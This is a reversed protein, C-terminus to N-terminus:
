SWAQERDACDLDIILNLMAEAKAKDRTSIIVVSKIESQLRWVIQPDFYGTLTYGDVENGSTCIQAFATSNYIDGDQTRIFM